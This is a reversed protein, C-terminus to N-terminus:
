RWTVREGQWEVAWVGGDETREIKGVDPEGEVLVYSEKEREVIMRWRGNVPMAARLKPKVKRDLILNEDKVKKDLSLNEAKVKKDLSFNEDKVKKDVTLNEDKVKKPSAMQGAVGNLTTRLLAGSMKGFAWPVAGMCCLVVVGIAAAVMWSTGRKEKVKDAQGTSPDIGVGGVTSYCEKVGEVDLRFTGVEVPSAGLADPPEEFRRWLFVNPLRFGLRTRNTFNKLTVYEDVLDRLSVDVRKRLQTVMVVQDGLHGHQTMWYGVGEPLTQWSRSPWILHCEDAVYVVPPVPVREARGEAELIELETRSMLWPKGGPYRWCQDLRQEEWREGKRMGVADKPMGVDLGRIRYCERMEENPAIVLRERARLAAAEGGHEEVWELVAGPELPLNTVVVKGSALEHLVRRTATLSKGQRPLGLIMTIM